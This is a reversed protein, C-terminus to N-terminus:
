WFITGKMISIIIGIVVMVVVLIVIGWAGPTMISFDDFYDHETPYYLLPLYTIMKPKTM